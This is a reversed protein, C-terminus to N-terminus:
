VAVVRASHSSDGRTKLALRILWRALQGGTAGCRDAHECAFQAGHILVDAAFTSYTM